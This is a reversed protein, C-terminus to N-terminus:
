NQYQSLKIYIYMFIFEFILIYYLTIAYYFIFKLLCGLFTRNEVNDIIKESIYEGLFFELNSYVIQKVVMMTIIIFDLCL